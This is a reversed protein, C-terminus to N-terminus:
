IRMNKIIDQHINQLPLWSLSVRCSKLCLCKLYLPILSSLSETNSDVFIASTPDSFYTVTVTYEDLFRRAFFFPTSAGRAQATKPKPFSVHQVSLIRSRFGFHFLSHINSTPRLLYDGQPNKPTKRASEM